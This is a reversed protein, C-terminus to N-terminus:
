QSSRLSSAIIPRTTVDSTRSNGYHEVFAELLMTLLSSSQKSGENKQSESSEASDSNEPPYMSAYDAFANSTFEQVGERKSENINPDSTLVATVTDVAAAVSARNAESAQNAKPDKLVALGEEVTKLESATAKETDKPASDLKESPESDVASALTAEKKSEENESSEGDSFNESAGLNEDPASDVAAAQVSAEQNELADSGKEAIASDLTRQVSERERSVARISGNLSDQARQNQKAESPSRDVGIRSESLAEKVEAMEGAVEALQAKKDEPAMDALSINSTRLEMRGAFTTILTSQIDLLKYNMNNTRANAGGVSKSLGDVDEKLSALDKLQEVADAASIPENRNVREELASLRQDIDTYVKGRDSAM